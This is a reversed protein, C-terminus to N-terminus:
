CKKGQWYYNTGGQKNYSLGIARLLLIKLQKYARTLCLFIYHIFIVKVEFM